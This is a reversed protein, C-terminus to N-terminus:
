SQPAVDHGYLEQTLRRKESAILDLYDSSFVEPLTREIEGELRWLAIREGPDPKSLAFSQDSLDAVPAIGSKRWDEYSRALFEFIVLLTDKRMSITAHQGDKM